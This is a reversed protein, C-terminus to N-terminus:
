KLRKFRMVQGKEGKRPYGYDLIAEQIYRTGIRYPDEIGPKVKGDEIYPFSVLCIDGVVKEVTGIEGDPTYYRTGKRVIVKSLEEDSYFNM